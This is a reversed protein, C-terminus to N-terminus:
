VLHRLSQLESTHEESRHLTIGALVGTSGDIGRLNVAVARYGADALVSMLNSFDEAARAWSPILAVTEGNGCVEVSLTAAGAAIHSTAREHGMWRRSCRAGANCTCTTTRCPRSCCKWIVGPTPSAAAARPM